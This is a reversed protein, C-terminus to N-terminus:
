RRGIVIEDAMRSVVLDKEELLVQALSEPDDASFVGTYTRAALSADEIRLRPSRNYRNFEAVVISLPDEQFELRRERWALRRKINPAKRNEIKGHEVIRAEEGASLIRTVRAGNSIEVRGEIVSVTLGGSHRDINFQTGLARVVADGVRVQFPRAAERQVDFLAEGALLEVGRERGSFEVQMRSQTNLHVVSGDDLKVSQQQGTATAFVPESSTVLRSLPWVVVFCALAAALFAGVRGRLGPFLVRVEEGPRRPLTPTAANEFEIVNGDAEALLADVDFQRRPDLQELEKEVAMTLLATRVNRRSELLWDAFGEREHVVGNGISHLWEAAQGAIEVDNARYHKM